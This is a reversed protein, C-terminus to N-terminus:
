FILTKNIIFNKFTRKNSRTFNTKCTMTNRYLYIHLKNMFAIAQIIIKKFIKKFFLNMIIPYNLHSKAINTCPNLAQIHVFIIHTNLE